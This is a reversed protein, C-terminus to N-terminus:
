RAIYPVQVTCAKPALVEQLVPVLALMSYVLLGAVITLIVFRM